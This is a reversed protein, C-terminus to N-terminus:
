EAAEMVPVGKAAGAFSDMADETELRPPDKLMHQLMELHASM